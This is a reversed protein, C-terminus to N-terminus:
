FVLQIITNLQVAGSKTQLDFTVYCVMVGLNDFLALEYFQPNGGLQDLNAEGAAVITTIEVVAPVASDFLVDGGVLTKRFTFLPASAKHCPRGALTAGIYNANLTISLDSNVTLVEGWEDVETGPNGASGFNISAVPGPKIWDGPSVDALFTTGTGVVATSGGTFGVTGGGALPTGESQIDNFTADPTIPVGALSGGEGIKFLVIEQHVDAVDRSFIRALIARWNEQVIAQVAM